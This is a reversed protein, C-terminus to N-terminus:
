KYMGITKKTINGFFIRNKIQSLKDLARWIDSDKMNKSNELQKSTDIDFLIRILDKNPGQKSAQTVVSEGAVSPEDVVIRNMFGKISGGGQGPLSPCLVLYQKMNPLPLPLDIHNIYRVALRVISVEGVLTKYIKWMRRAEKSIEAWSTYPKLKNFTFGNNRFQVISANDKTKFWYGQPKRHMSQSSGTPAFALEGTFEWREDVTPYKSKFKNHASLFKKVDFNPSINTRIDILAEHIPAKRLHPYKPM